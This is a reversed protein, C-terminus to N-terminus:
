RTPQWHVSIDAAAELVVGSWSPLRVTQRDPQWEPDRTSQFIATVKSKSTFVLEVDSGRNVFVVATGVRYIYLGARDDCACTQPLHQWPKIKARLLILRRYFSLLEPDQDAGWLMPLRAEELRGVARKQSLGVETGYYIIPPGPLTFQCLAALKLRNVEGGAAWLFRNMDHNDLFSSLVLHDGGEFYALHRQLQRDFESLTDLAFCGRLLEALPFDLCGDMRGTFSRIVAPTDTIEGVSISDAKAQRIAGRFRSWFGHSVGRAYDLRFGDCGQELWHCAADLLHQGVAPYDVELEPQSAVDYFSVYDHPWERFHFWHRYCSAADQQALQFYLHENSLHNAVFDLVVRLGRQHAANILQEWDAASGLRPEIGTYNTTAYGHYVPSPFVPTLWLCTVGLASLYDLQTAIGQLTGGLPQTLDEGLAFQGHPGPHFRDVLIQYFVAERFWAPPAFDDISVAYRQPSGHRERQQLPKLDRDVLGPLNAIAEPNHSPCPWCRGTADWGLLCYQMVLGDSRPPLEVQWIEIYAWLSTEWLVQLRRLEARQTSAATDDLVPAGGDTSYFLSIRVLSLDAGVRIQIRISEGPQPDLPEELSTPYFGLNQRQAAALRGERTSLRGFLFETLSSESVIGSSGPAFRNDVRKRGFSNSTTLTLATGAASTVFLRRDITM